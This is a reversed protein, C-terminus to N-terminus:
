ARAAPTFRPGAARGAGFGTLITAPILGDAM